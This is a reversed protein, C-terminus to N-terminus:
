CTCKNKVSGPTYIDLYCDKINCWMKDLWVESVCMTWDGNLVVPRPLRVYFDTCTNDPFYDGSDFSRVTVCFEKNYSM